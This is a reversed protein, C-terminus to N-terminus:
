SQEHLDGDVYFWRGDELVFRSIEHLRHARGGIRYRAVFEVIARTAGPEHRIVNLGIWRPAEDLILPAPRTSPHWSALLYDALGLVYASYRARMLAEATAAAEGAHLRGCCGDYRRGSACPCVTSAPSVKARKM